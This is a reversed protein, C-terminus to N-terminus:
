EQLLHTLFLVQQEVNQDKSRRGHQKRTRLLHLLLGDTNADLRDKIRHEHNVNRHMPNRYQAAYVLSRDIHEWIGPVAEARVAGSQMLELLDVAHAVNSTYSGYVYGEYFPDPPQAAVIPLVAFLLLLISRMANGNM